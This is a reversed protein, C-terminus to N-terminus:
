RSVLPLFLLNEAVAPEEEVPEDGGALESLFESGSEDTLTTPDLDFGQDVLSTAIGASIIIQQEFKIVISTPDIVGALVLGDKQGELPNPLSDREDGSIDFYFRTTGLAALGVKDNGYGATLGNFIPQGQRNRWGNRLGITIVDNGAGGQASAVGDGDLLIDNGAGGSLTDQDGTGGNLVDNGMGADLLDNGTGGRLLDSGEGSCLLDDGDQGDLVDNGGLGLLLDRGNTGTITNAGNTGVKITGSWGPAVLNGQANRYVTIPGCTGILTGIPTATPPVATNTATPPVATNTPTNTATPPVTTNTPTNIPTPTATASPTPTSDVIVEVEVSGIDCGSGQPRTIGRQDTAPASGCGDVGAAIANLAPSGPLPLHTKTRGDNDALPALGPGGAPAILSNSGQFCESALLNNGLDYYPDHYFGDCDLTSSAGNGAIITRRIDNDLFQIGADYFADGSYGASNATLTSDSIQVKAYGGLYLGGGYGDASNSSITSNQMVFNTM